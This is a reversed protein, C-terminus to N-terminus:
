QKKTVVVKAYRVVKGDIRYGKQFVEAIMDDEEGPVTCLAEHLEPDFRGEAPIEQLGKDELIKMINRRVGKFGAVMEDDEKAFSIARDMDDLAGLLEGVLGSIAFRRYDENDKQTRKRFNDFEAQLRRAMDLYEATLAKSKELEERTAELEAQLQAVDPVEAQEERPAKESKKRSKDTM